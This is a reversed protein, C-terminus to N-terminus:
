GFISWRRLKSRPKATPEPEAPRQRAEAVNQGADFAKDRTAPEVSPAATDCGTKIDGIRIDGQEARANPAPLAEAPPPDAPSSPQAIILRDLGGLLKQMSQETRLSCERLETMAASQGSVEEELKSIRQMVRTQVGDVFADLMQRQSRESESRLKLEVDAMRANVSEELWGRLESRLRLGIESLAELERDDRDLQSRIAAVEAAQLEIRSSPGSVGDATSGTNEPELNRLRGELAGLRVALNGDSERDRRPPLDRGVIAEGLRICAGLLLGGGVSAALITILKAV